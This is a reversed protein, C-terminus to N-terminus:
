HHQKTRGGDNTGGFKEVSSYKPFYLKRFIEGDDTLQLEPMRYKEAFDIAFKRFLLHIDGKRERLPPMDIQVTNLRYYLDERFRGDEIAKM